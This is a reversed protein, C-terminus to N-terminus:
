KGNKGKMTKIEEENPNGKIFKDNNYDYIYSANNIIGFGIINYKIDFSTFESSIVDYNM